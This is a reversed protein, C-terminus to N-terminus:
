VVIANRMRKTGANLCETNSYFCNFFYCIFGFSVSFSCVFFIPFSKCQIDLKWGDELPETSFAKNYAQCSLYKGADTRSLTISLTSTTQNGDSSTQLLSYSFPLGTLEFTCMYWHGGYFIVTPLWFKCNGYNKGVTTWGAVLNGNRTAPIWCKSM